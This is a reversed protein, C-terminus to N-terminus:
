RTLPGFRVLSGSIVARASSITLLRRGPCSIALPGSLGPLVQRRMYLFYGRIFGSGKHLNKISQVSWRSPCGKPDLM